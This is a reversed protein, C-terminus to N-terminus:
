AAAKRALLAMESWHIMALKPVRIENPPEAYLCAPNTMTTRVTFSGDITMGGFIQGTRGRYKGQTILVFEGKRFGTQHTEASM